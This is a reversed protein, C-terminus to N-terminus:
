ASPPPQDNQAFSHCTACAAETYHDTRDSHCAECTAREQPLWTHPPHCSVCDAHGVRAHLGHEKMHHCTGCDTSTPHGAVHPKHCQNCPLQMPAERPFTTTEQLLAHCDLCQQRTPAKLASGTALFPHCSTCHLVEMRKARVMVEAHCDRCSDSPRVFTHVGKSHCGVCELGLKQFHVQHGATGAVQMWKPDNSLHCAGCKTYDVEAHKSIADPRLAIFKVLQELNDRVSQQHCAHCDVQAHASAQWKQWSSEMLHCSRCFSPDHQTYNWFRHGAYAGFGILIVLGALLLKAVRPM